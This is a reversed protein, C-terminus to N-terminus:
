PEPRVRRVTTPRRTANHQSFPSQVVAPSGRHGQSTVAIEKSARTSRQGHSTSALERSAGISLRPERSSRRASEQPGGPPRGKGRPRGNRIRTAKQNSDRSGQFPRGESIFFRYRTHSLGSESKPKPDTKLAQLWSSFSFDIRDETAM